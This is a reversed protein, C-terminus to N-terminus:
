RYVRPLLSSFVRDKNQVVYKNKDSVHEFYSDLSNSIPYGQGNELYETEYKYILTELDSNRKLLDKQKQLLNSLNKQISFIANKSMKQRKSM